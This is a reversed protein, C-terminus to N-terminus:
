LPLRTKNIRRSGGVEAFELEVTGQVLDGATYVASSLSLAAVVPEKPLADRSDGGWLFNLM